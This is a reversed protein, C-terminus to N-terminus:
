HSGHLCLIFVSTFSRNKFFRPVCQFILCWQKWNTGVEQLRAWLTGKCDKATNLWVSISAPRPQKPADTSVRQTTLAINLLKPQTSITVRELLSRQYKKITTNYLTRKVYTHRNWSQVTNAYAQWIRYSRHRCRGRELLHKPSLLLDM